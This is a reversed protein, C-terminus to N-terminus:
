KKGKNQLWVCYIINHNHIPVEEDSKENQRVHTQFMM